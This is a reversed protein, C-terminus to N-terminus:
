GYPKLLFVKEELSNLGQDKFQPYENIVDEQFLAKIEYKDGYLARVEAESVSFPPGVKKVQDYEFTLLLIQTNNPLISKLHQAYKERLIVPLAVLSARDFVGAVNNLQHQNLNFFDGQWIFLQESEWRVLNDQQSQTYDLNNESFFTSVALESVEIGVVDHGQQKLWLLVLSKGCLPVFTKSDASINLHQWFKILHKNFDKQHFGIKNQSWSEIWFDTDM